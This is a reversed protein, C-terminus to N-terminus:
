RLTASNASVALFGKDRRQTRAFQTRANFALRLLQCLFYQTQIRRSQRLIAVNPNGIARISPSISNAKKGDAINAFDATPNVRDFVLM